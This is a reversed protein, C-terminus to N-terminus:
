VATQIMHLVNLEEILNREHFNVRHMYPLHLKILQRARLSSHRWAVQACIDVVATTPLGSRLLYKCILLLIVFSHSDFLGYVIRATESISSWM